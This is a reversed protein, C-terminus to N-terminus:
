GVDADRTLPTRALNAVGLSFTSLVASHCPDQCLRLARLFLPVALDFRDRKEYSHGLAVLVTLKTEAEHPGDSVSM